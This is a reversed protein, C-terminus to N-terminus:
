SNSLHAIVNRFGVLLSMLLSIRTPKSFPGSNTGQSIIGIHPSQIEGGAFFLWDADQDSIMRKIEQSVHSLNFELLRQDEYTQDLSKQPLKGPANEFHQSCRHM